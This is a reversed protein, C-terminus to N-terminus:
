ESLGGGMRNCVKKVLDIAKFTERKCQAHTVHNTNLFAMVNLASIYCPEDWLEPFTVCAGSMEIWLSDIYKAYESSQAGYDEYLPLIAFVKDVLCRLYVATM